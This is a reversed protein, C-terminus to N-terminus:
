APVIARTVGSCSIVQMRSGERPSKLDQFTLAPFANVQVGFRPYKSRPSVLRYPAVM